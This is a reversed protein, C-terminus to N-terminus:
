EGGRTLKPMKKLVGAMSSGSALAASLYAGQSAPVGLQACIATGLVFLTMGFSTSLITKHSHKWWDDVGTRFVGAKKKIEKANRPTAKFNAVAAQLELVKAKLAAYDSLSKEHEPVRDPDNPTQGKLQEIKEDIMTVLSAAMLVLSQKNTSVARVVRDVKAGPPLPPRRRLLNLLEDFKFLRVNRTEGALHMAGTSFTPAVLWFEDAGKISRSQGIFDRVVSPRLVGRTAKIQIYHSRRRGLQDSYAILDFGIDRRRSTEEVRYGAEKLAEELRAVMRFGDM